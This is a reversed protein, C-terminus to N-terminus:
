REFESLIKRCVKARLKAQDRSSSVDIAFYNKSKLAWPILMLVFPRSQLKLKFNVHCGRIHSEGGEDSRPVYYRRSVPKGKFM